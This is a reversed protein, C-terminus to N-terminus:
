IYNKYVRSVFSYDTRSTLEYRRNNYVYTAHWLARHIMLCDCRTAFFLWEAHVSYYSCGSVLAYWVLYFRRCPFPMIIIFELLMHYTRLTPQSKWDIFLTCWSCYMGIKSFWAEVIRPWLTACSFNAVVIWYRSIMFWCKVYFFHSRGAGMGCGNFM